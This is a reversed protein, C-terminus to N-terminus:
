RRSHRKSHKTVVIVSTDIEFSREGGTKLERSKKKLNKEVTKILRKRPMGRSKQGRVKRQMTVGVTETKRKRMIHGYKKARLM